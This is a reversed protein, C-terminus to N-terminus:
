LKPVIARAVKSGEFFSSQTAGKTASGGQHFEVLLCFRGLGTFDIYSKFWDQM